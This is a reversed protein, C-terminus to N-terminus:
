TEEYPQNSASSLGSSPYFELRTGEDASGVNEVATTTNTTEMTSQPDRKRNGGGGGNGGVPQTSLDHGNNSNQEPRLFALTGGERFLERYRKRLYILANFLGQLPTLIKTMAAVVVYYSRYRYRYLVEVMVIPAYTVFFVAIYLLAQIATEKTLVLDRGSGYRRLRVETSRVKCLIVSMSIIIIVFLFIAELSIRVSTEGGRECQQPKDSQADNCGPPYATFWCVGPLSDMPNFQDKVIGAIGNLTPLLLSITHAFPELYRAMTAEQWEFRVKCLFYVALFASYWMNGFLYNLFFGSAECSQVTGRAGAVYLKASEPVAWPGLIIMSLSVIWDLTSIAFILRHYVSKLTRDREVWITYIILSSGVTSFPATFLPLIGLLRQQRATFILEDRSPPSM